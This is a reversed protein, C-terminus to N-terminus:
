SALFLAVRLRFEGGVDLLVPALAQGRRVLAHERAERADVPVRDLEAQDARGM